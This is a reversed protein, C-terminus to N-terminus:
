SRHREDIAGDQLLPCALLHPARQMAQGRGLELSRLVRSAGKNPLHTKKTLSSNARLISCAATMLSVSLMAVAVGM